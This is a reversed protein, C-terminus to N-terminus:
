PIPLRFLGRELKTENENDDKFDQELIGESLM